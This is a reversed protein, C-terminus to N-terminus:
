KFCRLSNSSKYPSGKGKDFIIVVDKFVSWWIFEKEVEKLDNELEVTELVSLKGM